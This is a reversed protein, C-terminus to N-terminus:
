KRWVPYGVFEEYLHQQGLFLDASRESCHGKIHMPRWHHGWPDPQEQPLHKRGDLCCLPLHPHIPNPLLSIRAGRNEM